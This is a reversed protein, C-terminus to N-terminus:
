KANADLIAVAAPIQLFSIVESQQSHINLAQEAPEIERYIACVIGTQRYSTRFLGNWLVNTPFRPLAQVCIHRSVILSVSFFEMGTPILAFLYGSKNSSPHKRSVLLWIAGIPLTLRKRSANLIFVNTHFYVFTAWYTTPKVFGFTVKESVWFTNQEKLLNQSLTKKLDHFM